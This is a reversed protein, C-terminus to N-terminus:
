AVLPRMALYCSRLDLCGWAAVKRDPSSSCSPRSIPRHCRKGFRSLSARDCDDSRLGSTRKPDYASTPAPTPSTRELWSLPCAGLWGSIDVLHWYCVKATVAEGPVMGPVM